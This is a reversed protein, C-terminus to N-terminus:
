RTTVIKPAKIRATASPRHHQTQQFVNRVPPPTEAPNFSSFGPVTMVEGLKVQILQLGLELAARSLAM